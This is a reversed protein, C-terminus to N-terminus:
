DAEERAEAPQDDLTLAHAVVPAIRGAVSLERKLGGATRGAAKLTEESVVIDSLLEKTARELRSAVAVTEGIALSKRGLAPHDVDAVVTPGTHIGIGIRVPQPLAGRYENNLVAVTRLMDRAAALAARSGAHPKETKLGFVATVGDVMAIDVRGGHAKVAQMLEDLFRNLFAAVEVPQNRQTLATFGRMDAVLVTVRKEAGLGRAEIESALRGFEDVPLLIQVSMDDDPRIQCALRVNRPAGIRSLLASESAKPPPLADGGASVLVRCTGCRGRGGCIASHPIGAARSMELLTSGPKARREGHGVYRVSIRRGARWLIMRGLIIAALVALIALYGTNIAWQTGGFIAFDRDTYVEDPRVLALAERGAAVFGATALAPVLVAVALLVPESAKFWPKVRFAFHVGVCGHVWVVLMLITQSWFYGPWLRRLVATYTMDLGTRTAMIRTGVFHDVLLIPIALALAIQFAEAWSMRWTRRLAIRLIGLGFHVVFALALAVSGAPSRWIGYRWAQAQEMAALGFVGVAHNLFHSAAFAMLLLGSVLRAERQWNIAPGRRIEGAPQATATM